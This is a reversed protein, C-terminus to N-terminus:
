FDWLLEESDYGIGITADSMDRQDYATLIEEKPLSMLVRRPCPILPTAAFDRYYDRNEECEEIEHDNLLHIKIRALSTPEFEDPTDRCYLCSWATDEPLFDRTGALNLSPYKQHISRPHNRYADHVEDIGKASIAVWSGSGGPHESAHHEIAQRWTFVPFEFPCINSQENELMGANEKCLLSCQLCGFWSGLEDMEKVTTTKPELGAKEVLAEACKSLITNLRLPRTSWARRQQSDNAVQRAPVPRLGTWWESTHSFTSRRTLCGHGKLEPYFLVGPRPFKTGELPFRPQSEDFGLYSVHASEVIDDDMTHDTISSRNMSLCKNCQFVSTALKLKDVMVEDAPPLNNSRLIIPVSVYEITDYADDELTSSLAFEGFTNWTEGPMLMTRSPNHWRNMLNTGMVRVLRSDLSQRWEVVMDPILPVVDAFTTEDVPDEDPKDLIARVPSFDCFDLGSPMIDDYPHHAMMYTRFVAIAFPKREEIVKAHKRKMRSARVRDMYATIPGRINEWIRDTLKQPKNVQEMDSLSGPSIIDLVDAYGLDKLRRIIATYRERKLDELEEYRDRAQTNEWKECLAAHKVFDTLLNMRDYIFMLRADKDPLALFQAKIDELERRIVTIHLARKAQRSPVLLHLPFSLLDGQLSPSEAIRLDVLNAKACKNCTRIRMHWEATRIRAKRCFHCYHDFLLDVWAPECMHPPCPPLNPVSELAARWVSISSKKLLIRRFDKTTRAVRLLDYPNLHSFVELLIDLPLDLLGSLKGRVRKRVHKKAVQVEKPRSDGTVATSTDTKRKKSARTQM